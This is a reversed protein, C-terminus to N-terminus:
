GSGVMLQRWGARSGNVIGKVVSTIRVREVMAAGPTAVESAAGANGGRVVLLERALLGNGSGSDGCFCGSVAGESESEGEADAGVLGAVVLDSGVAVPEGRPLVVREGTELGSVVVLLGAAEGVMELSAGGTVGEGGGDPRAARVVALLLAGGTGRVPPDSSGM